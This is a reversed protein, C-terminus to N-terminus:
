PPDPPPTGHDAVPGQTPRPSDYRGLLQALKIRLADLFVRPAQNVVHVTSDGSLYTLHIPILGIKMGLREAIIFMEIDALFRRTRLRDMIAHAAERRFGKLGCQTDRWSLGFLLRVGLNFVASIMQRRAVHGLASLALSMQSSPHHRDGTVMDLGEARAGTEGAGKLAAAALGIDELAYSLDVDTLVILAGRARAVGTQIAAGKGSNSELGIVQVRADGSTVDRAVAATGDSSGDDVVIVEWSSWPGPPAAGAELYETLRRLSGAINNAENYAPLVVSIDVM